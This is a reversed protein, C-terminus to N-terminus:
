EINLISKISKVNEEIDILKLSINSVNSDTSYAKLYDTDQLINKLNVLVQELLDMHNMACGRYKKVNYWPFCKWVVNIFLFSARSFISYM